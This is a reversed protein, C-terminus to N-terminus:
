GVVDLATSFILTTQLNKGMPAQRKLSCQRYRWTSSRATSIATGRPLEEAMAFNRWFWFFNFALEQREASEKGFDDKFM